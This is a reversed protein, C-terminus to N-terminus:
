HVQRLGIWELGDFRLQAWDVVIMDNTQLGKRCKDCLWCNHAAWVGEGQRFDVFCYNSMRIERCLHCTREKRAVPGTFAARSSASSEESM